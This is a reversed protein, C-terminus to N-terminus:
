NAASPGPVDIYVHPGHISIQRAGADIRGNSGQRGALDVLRAIKEAARTEGPKEAGPAAGWIILSGTDTVVALRARNGYDRADVGAIQRSIEPTAAFARRLQSLLAISAEVDGGRWRKGYAFGQAANEPPGFQPNLIVPISPGAGGATYSLPLLEGSASVLHDRGNVRVAAFPARWEGRVRIVNNALRRVEIDRSFWGSAELAIRLSELTTRDFVDPSVTQAVLHELRRRESSPLWTDNPDAAGALRPYEIRATVPDARLTAVREMLPAAGALGGVLLGVWVLTIALNSLRRPQAFWAFSGALNTMFGPGSRAKKKSRSKAKAM